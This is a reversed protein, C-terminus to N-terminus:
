SKDLNKWIKSCSIQKVFLPKSPIIWTQFPHNSLFLTQHYPKFTQSLFTQLNPGAPANRVGDIYTSLGGSEEVKFWGFWIYFIDTLNKQPYVQPYSQYKAIL